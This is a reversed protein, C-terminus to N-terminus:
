AAQAPGAPHSLCGPAPRGSREPWRPRVQWIAGVAPRGYLQEFFDLELQVIRDFYERAVEARAPATADLEYRLFDLFARFDPNVHLTLWEAHVFSDPLPRPAAAACDLYLWETVLLVALIAAYDRTDTAEHFLALFGDTAPTSPI